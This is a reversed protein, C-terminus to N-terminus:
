PCHEGFGTCSVGIYLGVIIGPVYIWITNWFSKFINVGAHVEFVEKYGSITFGQTPWFHFDSFNAEQETMLSTIILIYFPALVYLCALVAIVYSGISPKNVSRQRKKFPDRM